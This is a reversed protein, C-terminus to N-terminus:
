TDILSKNIGVILGRKQLLIPPGIMPIYLDSLSVHIHFNPVLGHLKMEPFIQKSNKTGHRQLSSVEKFPVRSNVLLGKIEIAGRAV